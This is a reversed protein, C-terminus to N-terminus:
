HVVPHTLISKYFNVRRNKRRIRAFAGGFKKLHFIEFISFRIERLGTLQIEFGRDCRKSPTKIETRNKARFFGFRPPMQDFKPHHIRFGREHIVCAIELNLFLKDCADDCADELYARLFEFDEFPVEFREGLDRCWKIAERMRVRDFLQVLKPTIDALHVVQARIVLRQECLPVVFGNKDFFIRCGDFGKIHFTIWVIGRADQVRIEERWFSVALDDPSRLAFIIIIREDCTDTLM